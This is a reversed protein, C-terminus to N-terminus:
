TANNLMLARYLYEYIHKCTNYIYTYGCYVANPLNFLKIHVEIVAPPSQQKLFIQHIERNTM